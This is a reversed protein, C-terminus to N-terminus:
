NYSIYIKDEDELRSYYMNNYLVILKHVQKWGEATTEPNDEIPSCATDCMMLEDCYHCFTFEFTKEDNFVDLKLAVAIAIAESPDDLISNVIEIQLDTHLNYFDLRRINTTTHNTIIKSTAGIARILDDVECVSFKEKMMEALYTLHECLTAYTHFGQPIYENHRGAGYNYDDGCIHTENIILDRGM